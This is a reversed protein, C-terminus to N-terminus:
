KKWPQGKLQKKEKGSLTPNVNIMYSM